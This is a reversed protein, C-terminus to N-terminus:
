QNSNQAAKATPEKVRFKMLRAEVTYYIEGDLLASGSSIRDESELLLEFSGDDKVRSISDSLIAYVEGTEPDKLLSHGGSVPSGFPTTKRESIIKGTKPDFVYAYSDKQDVGLFIVNGNPMQAIARIEESQVPVRQVVSLGEPDFTFFVARNDERHGGGHAYTSTGVALLGNQMQRIVFSGHGPFDEELSWTRQTNDELNYLAIGGSIYGYGPFGGMVVTKGDSLLHTVRPRRIDNFRALVRPNAEAASVGQGAPKWEKQPDYIYLGGNPYGGGVIFGNWDVLNTLAAAYLVGKRDFEKTKPDYQYFLPPHNTMGYITDDSGLTIVGNRSGGSVYDLAITHRKGSGDEVLALRDPLSCSIIRGGQPFDDLVHFPRIGEAPLLEPSEGPELQKARGNELRYWPNKVTDRESDSARGYVKGDVGRATNATTVLRKDEPLLGQLKGTKLNYGVINSRATGIGAYIWGDDGVALSRPYMEDPDLQGLERNKGTAPDYEYLLSKPYTAYYIKGDPAETFSMGIGKIDTSYTWKKQSVDFELLTSKSANGTTTYVKGSSARLLYFIEGNETNEDTFFIQESKGTKVDVLLLFCRRGLGNAHDLGFATIYPDGTAPDNVAIIGRNEAVNSPTGVYEAESKGLLLVASLLHFAVIKKFLYLMNNREKLLRPCNARQRHELTIVAEVLGSKGKSNEKGKLLCAM